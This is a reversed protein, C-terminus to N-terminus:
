RQPVKLRYTIDIGKTIRNTAQTTEKGAACTCLSVAKAAVHGISRGGVGGHLMQRWETAEPLTKLRKHANLVAPVVIVDVDGDAM